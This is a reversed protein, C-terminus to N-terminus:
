VDGYISLVVDSFEFNGAPCEIQLRSGLVPTRKPDKFHKILEELETEVDGKDYGDFYNGIYQLVVKSRASQIVLKYVIRKRKPKDGEQASSPQSSEANEVTTYQYFESGESIDIVIHEHLKIESFPEFTDRFLVKGEKSSIKLEAFVLVQRPFGIQGTGYGGWEFTVCTGKSTEAVVGDARASSKFLAVTLPLLFLLFRIM